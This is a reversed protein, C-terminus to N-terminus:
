PLQDLSTIHTLNCGLLSQARHYAEESPNVFLSEKASVGVSRYIELLDTDSDTLGVGWLVFRDAKYPKGVDLIFSAPPHSKYNKEMIPPLLGALPSYTIGNTQVAGTTSFENPPAFYFNGTTSNAFLNMSGHPKYVTIGTPYQKPSYAFDKGTQALAADFCIDYNLNIVKDGPSLLQAVQHGANMVVCSGMGFQQTFLATLNYYISQHVFTEWFRANKGYKKWAFQFLREVNHKEPFKSELNLFVNISSNLMDNQHFQQMSLFKDDFKISHKSLYKQLVIYLATPNYGNFIGVKDGRSEMMPVPLSVFLKKALNTITPFLYESNNRFNGSRLCEEITAGAGVVLVTQM